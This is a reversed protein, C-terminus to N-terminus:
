PRASCHLILLFCCYCSSATFSLSHNAIGFAFSPVQDLASNNGGRENANSAEIAGVVTYKGKVEQAQLRLPQAKMQLLQITTSQHAWFALPKPERYGEPIRSTPHTPTRAQGLNHGARHTTQTM